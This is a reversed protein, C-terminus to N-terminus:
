TRDLTFDGGVAGFQVQHRNRGRAQRADGLAVEFLRPIGRM